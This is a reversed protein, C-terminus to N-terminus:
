MSQIYTFLPTRLLRALRALAQSSCELLWSSVKRFLSFGRRSGELQCKEKSARRTVIFHAGKGSM